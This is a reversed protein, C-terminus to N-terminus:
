RSNSWTTLSRSTASRVASHSPVVEGVAQAPGRGVPARDDVQQRRFQGREQLIEDALQGGGDQRFHAFVQGVRHQAALHQAADPAPDLM